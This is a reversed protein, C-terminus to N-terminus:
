FLEISKLQGGRSGKAAPAVSQHMLENAAYESAAAASQDVLSSLDNQSEWAGVMSLFIDGRKTMAPTMRGIAQRLVDQYQVTGLLETIAHNLETNHGTVAGMMVQYFQRMGVHSEDITLAQQLLREAEIENNHSRQEFEGSFKSEVRQSLHSITQEIEGASANTRGALRRMEDAVVSFGAGADGVRAAEIAANLALLDTRKSIEMITGAIASLAKVEGLLQRFYNREESIQVPLARVFAAMEASIRANSEIGDQMADSHQQAQALYDVLKGSRGVLDTLSEVMSTGYKESTLTTEAMREQMHDDLRLLNQLVEPARSPKALPTEPEDLRKGATGRWAVWAAVCAAALVQLTRVVWDGTLPAALPELAVILLIALFVLTFGGFARSDRALRLIPPAIAPSTSM